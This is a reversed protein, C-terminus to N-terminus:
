LAVADRPRASKAGQPHRLLQSEIVLMQLDIEVAALGTRGAMEREIGVPMNRHDLVVAEHKPLRHRDVKIEALFVARVREIRGTELVLRPGPLPTEPSHGLDLPRHQ